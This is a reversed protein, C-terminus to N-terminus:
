HRQSVRVAGTGAPQCVRGGAWRGFSGSALRRLFTKVRVVGPYSNINEMTQTFITDTLLATLAGRIDTHFFRESSFWFM